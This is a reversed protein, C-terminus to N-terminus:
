NDDSGASREQESPTVDIVQPQARHSNLAMAGSKSLITLIEAMDSLQKDAQQHGATGGTTINNQTLNLTPGGPLAITVAESAPKDAPLGLSIREIQATTKLGDLAEKPSLAHDEAQKHLEEAFKDFLGAAKERHRDQM